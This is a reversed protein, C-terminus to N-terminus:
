LRERVNAVSECGTRKESALVLVCPPRILQSANGVLDDIM